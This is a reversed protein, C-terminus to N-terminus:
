RLRGDDKVDYKVLLGSINENEKLSTEISVRWYKFYYGRIACVRKRETTGIKKWNKLDNSGWLTLRQKESYNGQLAFENVRKLLLSDLKMPRTVMLGDKPLGNSFNYDDNLVIVNNSEFQVYSFPYSNIVKKVGEDWAMTSWAKDDAKMVYGVKSDKKVLILRQNSYDWLPLCEEIFKRIATNGIVDPKEFVDPVGDIKGSLLVADNETLLMLGRQSAFFIGEEMGAVSDPNICVDPRMPTIGDYLGANEGSKIVSLGYNGDTCFAVLPFAGMQGESLPKTMTALKLIEGNGVVNIGMSKFRFPNDAESTYIYNKQVEVDEEDDTLSFDLAPNSDDFTVDYGDKNYFYAGALANSEKLAFEVYRKVHNDDEYVILYGVAQPNAVFLYFVKEYYKSTVDGASDLRVIKINGKRNIRVYVEVPRGIVEKYSLANKPSESIHHKTTVNYLNIRGNYEMMGNAFFVDKNWSDVYNRDTQTPIADYQDKIMPLDVFVGTRLDGGEITKFHFFDGMDYRDEMEEQKVDQLTYFPMKVDFLTPHKEYDDEWGDGNWDRMRFRLGKLTFGSEMMNRQYKPNETPVSKFKVRVPQYYVPAYNLAFRHDTRKSANEDEEMLEDLKVIKYAEQRSNIKGHAENTAEVKTTGEVGDDENPNVYNFDFSPKPATVMVEVGRILSRWEAPIAEELKYQLKMVNAIVYRDSSLFLLPEDNESAIDYGSWGVYDNNGDLIVDPTANIGIYSPPYYGRKAKRAEYYEVDQPEIADDVYTQPLCVCPFKTNPIMAIPETFKAYTGDYLKWAARVMFPYVFGGGEMNCYKNVFRNVAQAIGDYELEMVRALEDDTVQYEHTVQSTDAPFVTDWPSVDAGTDATYEKEEGELAFSIKLDPMVGLFQYADNEWLGYVLEKGECLFTLLNGTAAIEKLGAIEDKKAVIGTAGNPEYYMLYGDDRLYLYHTYGEAKHIFMLEGGLAIEEGLLLSPRVSGAHVELNHMQSCQGDPSLDSYPTAVLGEEFSIQKEM